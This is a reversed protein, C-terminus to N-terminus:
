EVRAPSLRNSTMGDGLQGNGNNGWAWLTGDARIAVTHSGNASVSAWDNATGIQVPSARRNDRYGGTGDGLQGNGNWGWAWLTGDTRIAVTHAGGASVSAWDNATGIQVPSRRSFTTGDGLQGNHNRGWAWLSGDTRIAVTHSTGASVSAWDNATGVQIPSTRRSIQTGDGLQGMQNNGWAWLTGDTRIAVMYSTGASVSAWDGDTGIQVPSPRHMTTGDGLEGNSNNGWAWLTGDTRIAVTRSFGASVSAWGDAAGVQVPRTRQTTTGDGLRGSSNNGWAWLSGDTRIAVTHLRGASVSAWDGDTGVQVPRTRQTTTGDGLQGSSNSGWAWLTGNEMIGVSHSEGASIYRFVSLPLVWIAYLTINATPTFSAGADHSTGTGTANTNWRGFVFGPRSLGDGDPLTMESGRAVSQAAVTGVGGNANFSVTFAQGFVLWRAYLTVSATPTFPTGVALKTGSGAAASTNWGVFVFGPRSLGGGAPLTISSGENVTQEGPATGSGGNAHFSITFSRLWRAYLTISAMPAFVQGASLNEGSGDPMTNWGGFAHGAKLLGSDNPIMFGLGQGVERAPVTGVGGNANFSVAITPVWIAYLTTNGAPIFTSGAAHTTGTGDPNANWGAFTQGAMILGEGGPLTAGLGRYAELAPVTGMAGNANFSVVFTGQPVWKAFMVRNGSPQYQDGPKHITGAGDASTAWGAFNYGLRTFGAGNPLTIPSGAEVTQPPPPSM